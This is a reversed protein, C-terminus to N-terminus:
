VTHGDKELHKDDQETEKEELARTVIDAWVKGPPPVAKKTGDSTETAPKEPKFKLGEETVVIEDDSDGSDTVSHLKDFLERSREPPM